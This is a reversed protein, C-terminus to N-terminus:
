HEAIIQAVARTGSLLGEGFKNQKLYPIMDRQLIENCLANPLINEMGSGTMIRVKREEITVFLLVGKDVGQKGIGWTNYLCNAYDSYDAGGIDQMTVVVIPVETNRRIKDTLEILKEEHEEPVVDAFDNVLGRQKPFPSGTEPLTECLAQLFRPHVQGGLSQAKHVDEWAKDYEGKLYYTVGRNSYIDAYKPNLEIAKTLDSIAQDHQGRDGYASGRNSYAEALNPNLEIAKTYDAIAHDHQRKNDYAGGRNNYAEAYGPNLEIAKTYNSIAQDYQGKEAYANGLEYYEEATTQAFCLGVTSLLVILALVSIRTIAKM